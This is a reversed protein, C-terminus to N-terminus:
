TASTRENILPLTMLAEVVKPSLPKMGEDRDIRTSKRKTTYKRRRSRWISLVVRM